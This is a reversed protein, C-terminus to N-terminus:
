FTFDPPYDVSSTIGTHHPLASFLRYTTEVFFLRTFDFVEETKWNKLKDTRGNMEWVTVNDKLFVKVKLSTYCSLFESM